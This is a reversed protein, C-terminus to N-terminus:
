YGPNQNESTIGANSSIEDAPIPRLWKIDGYANSMDSVSNVNVNYAINYRVLQKTRKLDEWRNSEAYLERAREDLIMDLGTFAGFSSPVTYFVHNSRYSAPDSVDVDAVGARKRVANLKLNAKTTEGAMYYAEAAILYIDSAHLLVIDRYDNNKDVQDSNVDDFKRVCLDGNGDNHLEDLPKTVLDKVTGDANFSFIKATSSLIVAQPTNVYTGQKYQSKHAALEARADEETVWYPFFRLGIGLNELESATRNYFAYYGTKGWQGKTYNYFTTMFTAEYREDGEEYLFASKMSQGNESGVYKYGSTIANLYYNGFNNQFSHGSSSQDGPWSSKDYQVSFIEENNGENKQAWKDEFSMTLPIDSIAADAYSAAKLFREKSNVTYTGAQADNLTVDLDWGAALYVKALLANAAKQSPHGTHDTAPLSSSSNTVLTELDSIINAYIEELPTRPFDRSADLTYTTVYPVSGFHQTLLYYGYARLFMAEQCTKSSKDESFHIVGNANNIMDYADQYFSLVDSSEASLTSYVNFEGGNGGREKVYLDTGKVFIDIRNVLTKLRDNTTYLLEEPHKTFYQDADEPNTKNDADLFDSCSTLSVGLMLVLISIYKIRKM